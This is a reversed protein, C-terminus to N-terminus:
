RILIVRGVGAVRADNLRGELPRERLSGEASDTKSLNPRSFARHPLQTTKLLTLRRTPAPRPVRGRRERSGTFVPLRATWAADSDATDKPIVTEVLFVEGAPAM